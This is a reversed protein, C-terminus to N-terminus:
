PESKATDIFPTLTVTLFNEDYKLNVTGFEIATPNYATSTVFSPTCYAIPVNSTFAFSTGLISNPAMSTVSVSSPVVALTVTLTLPKSVYPESKATSISPVSTDTFFYAPLILKVTGDSKGAFIYVTLMTFSPIVYVKPVNSTFALSTGLISNPAMSTVSVSSPVVALTVTLTLPKSVYPESKATSISPVSTDTFFYAPLILKVTGDSKGAFIYVTLM